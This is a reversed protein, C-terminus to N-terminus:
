ITRLQRYALLNMCVLLSVHSVVQFRVVATMRGM